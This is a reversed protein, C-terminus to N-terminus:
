LESKTMVGSRRREKLMRDFVGYDHELEPQRYAQEDFVM